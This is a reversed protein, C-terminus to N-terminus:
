KLLELIIQKRWKNVRIKFNANRKIGLANRYDLPITIQGKESMVRTMYPLM